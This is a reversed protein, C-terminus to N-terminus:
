GGAFPPLVDIRAGTPLEAAPDAVRRGDVLLSCRTLVAALEPRADGLLAVLGDASLPGDVVQGRRGAADAAAAYFNVQM